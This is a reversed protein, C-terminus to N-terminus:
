KVRKLALLSSSAHPLLVCVSCVICSISSYVVKSLCALIKKVRLKLASLYLGSNSALGIFMLYSNATSEWFDM